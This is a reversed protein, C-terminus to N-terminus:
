GAPGPPPCEHPKKPLDFAGGTINGDPSVTQNNASDRAKNNVYGFLSSGFISNIFHIDKECGLTRAEIHELRQPLM